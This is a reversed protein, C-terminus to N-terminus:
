ADNDQSIGFDGTIRMSVFNFPPVPGVLATTSMHDVPAVLTNLADEFASLQDREVLYSADLAVMDDKREAVVSERALGALGAHIRAQVADSEATVAAEIMRGLEIREYYTEQESRGAIKDRMAVLEADDTVLMQMLAAQDWIVKVGMEVAGRISNLGELLVDRYEDLLRKAHDSDDIVTGFRIPLVDHSKMVEELVKTHALMNRRSPRVKPADIGSVLLGLGDTHATDVVGVGGVVTDPKFSLDQESEIVGYVYKMFPEHKLANKQRRLWM